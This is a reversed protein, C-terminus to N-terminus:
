GQTIGLSGISQIGVPAITSHGTCRRYGGDAHGHDALSFHPWTSVIRPNRSREGNYSRAAIRGCEIYFMGQLRDCLLKPGVIQSGTSM